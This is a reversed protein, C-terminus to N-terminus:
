DRALPLPVFRPAPPRTAEAAWRRRRTEEGATRDSAQRASAEAMLRSQALSLTRLAALEEAAVALLQNTSQTAATQGVAVESAILAGTLRQIREQGQRELEAAAFALDQSTRLSIRNRAQSAELLGQAENGTVDDAYLSDFQSRLSQASTGLGRATRALEGMDRLAESSASRHSYPSSALSRAENALSQLQRAAQLANELHNRPDYVIAQAHASGAVWLGVFALSAALFARPRNSHSRTPLPMSSLISM